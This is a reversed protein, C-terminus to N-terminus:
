WLKNVVVFRLIVIIQNVNVHLVHTDYVLVLLVLQVHVIYLAYLIKM